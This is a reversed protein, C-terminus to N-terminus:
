QERNPGGFATDGALTLRAVAQLGPVNTGSNYIAGNTSGGGVVVGVGSVTIPEQGFNHGFFMWRRAM